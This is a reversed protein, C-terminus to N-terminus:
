RKFVDHRGFQNRLASIIQGTYSPRTKSASRFNVSGEIIPTPVGIEGGAEVTWLGEGSQAASGSIADLGQGYEVFAEKLWGVLRSAIVSGHNYLDAVKMLDLNFPSAKMVAFGEALAQMMGYEIGNHVMKVFHGAGPGGMYGYGDKVSLDRFLHKYSDFVAKEGGVMICAGNRAGVPGGSVGADLFGIKKIALEGSRRISDKYYSNGGDVVTDGQDLLPILDRLFVDVTEHPLMLWILRPKKLAGVLSEIDAAPASPIAAARKVADKNVDFVVTKYGKETLREVMSFGMKGLGVYGLKKRDRTSKKETDWSTKM